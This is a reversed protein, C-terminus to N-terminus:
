LHATSEVGERGRIFCSSHFTKKDHSGVPEQINHGGSILTVHDPLFDKVITDLYSFPSLTSDTLNEMYKIQVSDVNM